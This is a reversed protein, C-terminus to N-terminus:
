NNLINLEKQFFYSQRVIQYGMKQYFAHSSSLHVRSALMIKSYGKERCWEECRKLLKKGIGHNRFTKDIMIQQLEIYKGFGMFLVEALFAYGIIKENEIVVLLKSTKKDMASVSFRIDEQTFTKKLNDFQNILEVISQIENESPHNLERIEM